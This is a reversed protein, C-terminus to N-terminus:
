RADTVYIGVRVQKWPDADEKVQQVRVEFVDAYGYHRMLSALDNEGGPVFGMKHSGFYIAVADPDHPNDPEPVLALGSEGSKLRSLVLAGDYYQFGAIFFSLILRSPECMTEEVGLTGQPGYETNSV